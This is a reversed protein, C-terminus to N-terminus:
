TEARDGNWRHNAECVVAVADVLRDVQEADPGDNPRAACQQGLTRETRKWRPNQLLKGQFVLRPVQVESSRDRKHVDEDVETLLNSRGQYLLLLLPHDSVPM